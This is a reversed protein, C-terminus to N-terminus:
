RGLGCGGVIWDKVLARVWWWGVRVVRVVRV